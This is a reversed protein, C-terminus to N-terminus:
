FDVLRNYEELSGEQTVVKTFAVENHKQTNTFYEFSRPFLKKVIDEHIYGLPVTAIADDIGISRVGRQWHHRTEYDFPNDQKGVTAVVRYAKTIDAFVESFDSEMHLNLIERQAERFTETNLPCWFGRHDYLTIYPNIINRGDEQDSLTM